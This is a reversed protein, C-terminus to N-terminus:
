HDPLRSLPSFVSLYSRNQALQWDGLDSQPLARLPLHMTSPYPMQFFTSLKDVTQWPKREIGLVVVDDKIVEQVDEALLNEEYDHDILSLSLIISPYSRRGRNAEVTSVLWDTISQNLAKRDLSTPLAGAHRCAQICRAIELTDLSLFLFDASSPTSLPDQSSALAHM